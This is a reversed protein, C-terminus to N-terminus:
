VQLTTNEASVFRSFVRLIILPFGFLLTFIGRDLDTRQRDEQRATTTKTDHM